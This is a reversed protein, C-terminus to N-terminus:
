KKSGTSSSLEVVVKSMLRNISFNNQAHSTMPVKSIHEFISNVANAKVLSPNPTISEVFLKLDEKSIEKNESDTKPSGSSQKNKKDSANSDEGCPMKVLIMSEPNFGNWFEEDDGGNKKVTQETIGGLVVRHSFFDFQDGVDQLTKSHGFAAFAGVREVRIRAVSNAISSWVRLKESNKIELAICKVLESSFNQLSEALANYMRTTESNEDSKNIPQLQALVNTFGTEPMILLVLEILVDRMQVTYLDSFGRQVREFTNKILEEFVSRMQENYDNKVKDKYDNNDGRFKAEGDDRLLLSFIGSLFYSKIASDGSIASDGCKFRSELINASVEDIAVKKEIWLEDDEDVEKCDRKFKEYNRKFKDAIADDMARNFPRFRRVTRNISEAWSLFAMAALCLEDCSSQRILVDRLHEFRNSWDDFFHDRHFFTIWPNISWPILLSGLIPHRWETNSIEGLNFCNIDHRVTGQGSFKMLDHILKLSARTRNGLKHNDINTGKSPVHKNKSSLQEERDQVWLDERLIRKCTLSLSITNLAFKSGSLPSLTVSDGDVLKSFLFQCSMEWISHKEIAGKLIRQVSSTLHGDEDVVGIYDKFLTDILNSAPGKAQKEEVQKKEDNRRENDNVDKQVENKKKENNYVERLTAYLDAIQRPPANLVQSGDYLPEINQSDGHRAGQDILDLFTFHSTDSNDADGAEYKYSHTLTKIDEVFHNDIKIGSLIKDFTLEEKQKQDREQGDVNTQYKFTEQMNMSDITVRHAVPILKRLLSSSVENAIAKIEQNDESLVHHDMLKRYEGQVQYFLVEDLDELIGIFIFFLRRVPLSYALKIVEIAKEPRLDLDDIVIVYVGRRDIFEASSNNSSHQNNIINDLANELRKSINVKTQEVHSVVTSYSELDMSSEYKTINNEYAQIADTRVNALEYKSREWTSISELPGVATPKRNNNIFLELRALIAGLINTGLPMPDLTFNDLWYVTQRLSEHGGHGKFKEELKDIFKNYERKSEEHREYNVDSRADDIMKKGTNEDFLSQVTKILTTKGTGKPGSLFLLRSNNHHNKPTSSEAAADLIEVANTVAERQSKTLENLNIKEAEPRLMSSM